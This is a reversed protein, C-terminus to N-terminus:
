RETIRDAKAQAKQLFRESNVLFRTHMGRGIEGVEDEMVVDFEIRRRDVERVTATATVRMGIPTADSHSINIQTGVSTQGEPLCAAICQVAAHEMLALMMPTAFVDVTGSGVARATNNADVTTSATFTMGVAIEM